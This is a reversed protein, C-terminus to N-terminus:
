PEAPHADGDQVESERRQCFGADEVTLRLSFMFESSSFSSFYFVSVHSQMKSQELLCEFTELFEMM